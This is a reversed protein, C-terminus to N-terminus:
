GADGKQKLSDLAARIDEKFFFGIAVGIVIRLM